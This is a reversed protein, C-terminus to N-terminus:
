QGSVPGYQRDGGGQREPAARRHQEDHEIADKECAPKVADVCDPRNRDLRASHCKLPHWWDAYIYAASRSLGELAWKSASYATGFHGTIGAVSGINVISGGGSDRILPACTQIGRVSGTVNIEFFRTGSSSTSTPSDSWHKSGVINMLVQLAGAQEKIQAVAADWHDQNVVNLEVFHAKSGAGNIEAVLADGREQNRGAVFVTAGEWAFLRASARGMGGYGGTILAVKKDLRM